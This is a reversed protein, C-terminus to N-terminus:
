RVTAGSAEALRPQAPESWAATAAERTIPLGRGDHIMPMGDYRTGRLASLSELFTRLQHKAFSRVLAGPLHGGFDVDMTAAVLTGAPGLAFLIWAGRNARLYVSDDVVQRTLGPVLGNQYATDLLADDRPLLTWRHEWIVGQSDDALSLNKDCLLTWQRDKFPWPLTMHHYSVYAGAARQQLVAHHLRASSVEGGDLISLWVLLRPAAVVRWGVIQMADVQHTSPERFPAVVSEGAAVTALETPSLGPLAFDGARSYQELLQPIREVLNVDFPPTEARPASFPGMALVLLAARLGIARVPRGNAM